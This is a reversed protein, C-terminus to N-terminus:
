IVSKTSVYIDASGLTVGSLAVNSTATITINVPSSFDEINPSNSLQFVTSGPAQFVNFASAYKTNNGSIGVSLTYSSAGGGSFAASHKIVVKDLMNAAPLSFLTISNSTSGSSFNAATKTIKTFGTNSWAGQGTTQDQLTWTFGNSATSLSPDSIYLTGDKRIKFANATSGSSAGNGVVFVPDTTVWSGTTGTATAYRGVALCAYSSIAQGQGFGAAYNGGVNHETGHGFAGDGTVHMDNGPAHGGCHAGAGTAEMVGTDAFGHCFSGTGSSRLAAGLSRSRGVALSGAGNSEVSSGNDASGGAIAGAAVAQIVGGVSISGIAISGPGASLMTAPSGAGADDVNGSALSGAGSATITGHSLANGSAHAGIGSATMTTSSNSTGRALAGVGSATMTGGNDVDGQAQSGNANATFTGAASNTNGFFLSNTAAFFKADTNDNLNGSGDFYALTNATGSPAPASVWSLIGPAGNTSLVQGSTGSTAPLTLTVTGGLAADQAKLGIFNSGTSDYFDISAAIGNTTSFLKTIDASLSIVGGAPLNVDFEKGADNLVLNSNNAWGTVPNPDGIVINNSSDVVLTQIDGTNAANTWTLPTNNTIPLTLGGSSGSAAATIRGQQDVTINANTYPGPTVATNALVITGTTTIPGGTLGTGTAVNTVTGTSGASVPSFGSGNNFVVENLTTDYALSGPESPTIQALHATTNQPLVLKNANGAQGLNIATNQKPKLQSTKADSM